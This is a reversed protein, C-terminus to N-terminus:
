WRDAIVMERGAIVMERGAIVMARDAKGSALQGRGGSGEGQCWGAQSGTVSTTQLLVCPEAREIYRPLCDFM